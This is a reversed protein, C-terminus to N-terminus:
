PAPAEQVTDIASLAGSPWEIRLADWLLGEREFNRTMEAALVGYVFVRVTSRTTPSASGHDSYYLVKVAYLGASPRSLVITEPGYGNLDDRVLRPDDLTGPGGFDPTPNDFSCDKPSNLTANGELLHLDLDTAPHDWVLEVFVDDAPKARVTRRACPVLPDDGPHECSLGTADSVDLGIEYEGAVDLILSPTPSSADAFEASSGLPRRFVRWAYALPLDGDPDTSGTGDFSAADGPAPNGTTLEIVSALPARNISAALSVLLERRDPDTSVIRVTGGLAGPMTASTPACRVSLEVDSGPPLTAPTRASGAFSFEPASGPVLDLTEIILPATGLSRIRIGLVAQESEGVRGFDLGSPTVEIRGITSGEGLLRIAVAEREPDDHEVVLRGEYKAEAPPHFRVPVAVSQLGAVRFPFTREDIEFPGNAPEFRMAGIELEGRGLNDIWLELTKVNLVPVRGFDLVPAETPDPRDTRVRIEPTLIELRDGGCSLAVVASMPILLRRRAIM